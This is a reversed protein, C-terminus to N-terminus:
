CQSKYASITSLGPTLLETQESCSRTCLIRMIFCDFGTGIDLFSSADAGGELSVSDKFVTSGTVDFSIEFDSGQLIFFTEFANGANAVGTRMFDDNFSADM